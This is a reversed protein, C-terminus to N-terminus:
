QRWRSISRTIQQTVRNVQSNDASIIEAESTHEHTSQLLVGTTTWEDVVGDTVAPRILQNWLKIVQERRQLTGDPLIDFQAHPYITEGDSTSLRILDDKIAMGHKSLGTEAYFPGLVDNWASTETM